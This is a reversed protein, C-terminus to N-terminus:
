SASCRGASRAPSGGMVAGVMSSLFYFKMKTQVGAYAYILVFCYITLTVMVTKKSGLKSSVWNFFMAGVFGVFQALLIAVTLAEVPLKLEEQGFQAALTLVTQIADNYILYGILFRLTQPLTLIEAFRTGCNCCRRGSM